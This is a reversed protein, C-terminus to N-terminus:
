NQIKPNKTEYHNVKGRTMSNGNFLHHFEEDFEEDTRKVAFRRLLIKVKQKEKAKIKENGKM